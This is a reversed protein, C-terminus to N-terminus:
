RPDDNTKVKRLSPNGPGERHEGDDPSTAPDSSSGQGEGSALREQRIQHARITISILMGLENKGQAYSAEHGFFRAERVTAKPLREALYSRLDEILIAVEDESPNKTFSDLISNLKASRGHVGCALHEILQRGRADFPNPKKM